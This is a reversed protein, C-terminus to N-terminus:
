DASALRTFPTLIRCKNAVHWQSYSHLSLNFTFCLHFGVGLWQRTKNKRDSSTGWFFTYTSKHYPHLCLSDSHVATTISWYWMRCLTVQVEHPLKWECSLGTNRRQNSDSSDTQQGFTPNLKSLPLLVMHSQPTATVQLLAANNSCTCDFLRCSPLGVLTHNSQTALDRQSLFHPAEHVSLM